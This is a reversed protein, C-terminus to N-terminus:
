LGEIRPIIATPLGRASRIYNGGGMDIETRWGAAGLIINFLDGALDEYGVTGSTLQTSGGKDNSFVTSGATPASNGSFFNYLDVVTATDVKIGEGTNNTLRCCFVIVTGSSVYVGEMGNGDSVCFAVLAGYGSFMFGRLENGHAVCAMCSGRSGLNFGYGGNGNATCGLLMSSEIREFGGGANNNARCLIFQSYSFDNSGGWGEGGGAAQTDHSHCRLFVWRYVDATASVNVNNGTANKFEVNEIWWDDEDDVNLCNAAANDADIVAPDGGQNGAADCGIIRVPNGDAGSHQDIDLSATLTFTNRIYGVEGAAITDLLAQFGAEGQWADAWSTGDNNGTALTGDAYYPGAM